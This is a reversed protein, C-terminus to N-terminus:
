AHPQTEDDGKTIGGFVQCTEGPRLCPTATRRMLAPYLKACKAGLAVLLQRAHRDKRKRKLELREAFLKYGLRPNDMLLLYHLAFAQSSLLPTTKKKSSKKAQKQLKQDAKNATKSLKAIHASHHESPPSISARFAYGLM